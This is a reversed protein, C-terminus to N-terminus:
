RAAASHCDFLAQLNCSSFPGSATALPGLRPLFRGLLAVTARSDIVAVASCCCVGRRVFLLDQQGIQGGNEGSIVQTKHLAPRGLLMLHARGNTFVVGFFMRTALANTGLGRATARRQAFNLCHGSLTEVAIKHRPTDLRCCVFQRTRSDGSTSFRLRFVSGCRVGLSALVFSAL